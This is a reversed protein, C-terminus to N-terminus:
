SLDGMDWFGPLAPADGIFEEENEIVDDEIIAEIYNLTIITGSPVYDGDQKDTNITEFKCGAYSRPELSGKVVPIRNAENIWIKTTHVTQEVIRGDVKHQVTYTVTKQQSLDKIYKVTIVMGDDM